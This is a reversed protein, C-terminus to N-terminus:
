KIFIIFNFKGENNEELSMMLQLFDKIQIDNSERYAISEKILKKFFLEVQRPIM